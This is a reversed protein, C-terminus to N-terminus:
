QAQASKRVRRRRLVLCLLGAAAVLSWAGPEPTAFGGAEIHLNDFAVSNPVSGMAWFSLDAAVPNGMEPDEGMLLLEFGAGADYYEWVTTGVRVIKFTIPDLGNTEFLAGTGTGADHPDFTAGVGHQSLSLAADGLNLAAASLDPWSSVLGCPDLEVTVTYDGILGFPTYLGITNNNVGDDPADTV